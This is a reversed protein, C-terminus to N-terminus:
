RGVINKDLLIDNKKLASSFAFYNLKVLARDILGIFSFVKPLQPRRSSYLLSNNPHQKQSYQDKLNANNALLFIKKNSGVSYLKNNTDVSM